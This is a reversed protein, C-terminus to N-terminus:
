SDDTSDVVNPVLASPVEVRRLVDPRGVWGDCSFAGQVIIPVGAKMAALTQAEAGAAIDGSAISAVELGTCGLHEVYQDEHVSGREWLLRLLPDWIYPKSLSGEVVALDLFSLHRCNLFGVLDTATLELCDTNKRM